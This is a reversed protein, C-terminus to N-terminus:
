RRWAFYYIPIMFVLIGILWLIDESTSKISTSFIFLFISFILIGSWIISTIKAIMNIIINIHKNKPYKVWGYYWFPSSLYLVFIIGFGIGLLTIILNGFSLSNPIYLGLSAAELRTEQMTFYLKISLFAMYIGYFLYSVVIISSLKAWWKM